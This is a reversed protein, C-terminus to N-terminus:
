NNNKYKKKFLKISLSKFSHIFTTCIIRSVAHQMILFYNEAYPKLNRKKVCHNILITGQLPNYM